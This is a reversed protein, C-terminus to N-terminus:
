KAKKTYEDFLTSVEGNAVEKAKNSLEQDVFSRLQQQEVPDDLSGNGKTSIM